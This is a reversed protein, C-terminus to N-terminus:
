AGRPEENERQRPALVVRAEPAVQLKLLHPLLGRDLYRRQPGVGIGQQAGGVLLIGAHNSVEVGAAAL